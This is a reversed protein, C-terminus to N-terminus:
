AHAGIGWRILVRILIRREHFRVRLRVTRPRAAQPQRRNVARRLLVGGRQFSSVPLLSVILGRVRMAVSTAMAPALTSPVDEEASALSKASVIDPGDVVVTPWGVTNWM